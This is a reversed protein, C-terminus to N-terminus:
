DIELNPISSYTRLLNMLLEACHQDKPYSLYHNGNINGKDNIIYDAGIDFKHPGDFTFLEDNIIPMLTMADWMRQGSECDHHSYAHYLPSDAMNGAKLDALIDKPEYNFQQGSEQPSFLVPTPWDMLVKRANEPDQMFNYDPEATGSLHGGQICLLTVKRKVLDIGNLPSFEDPGSELLHALNTAFGISCIFISRDKSQSLIKRYLTEAPLSNELEEDSRTRRFVPEDAYVEPAAMKWYDIFASPNKVGNQVRGVPIDGFGYYTNMIDTLRLPYLGERNVMIGRIKIPGIRQIKYLLHMTILDDTSSGIDTDLIINSPYGYHSFPYEIAEELETLPNGPIVPDTEDKSCSHLTGTAMIATLLIARIRKM